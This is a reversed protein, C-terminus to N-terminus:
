TDIKMKRRLERKFEALPNAVTETPDPITGGDREPVRGRNVFRGKEDHARGKPDTTVATSGNQGAPKQFDSGFDGRLKAIEIQSEIVQQRLEPNPIQQALSINLNRYLLGIPSLAPQGQVDMLVNGKDDHVFYEAQKEQVYRALAEQQRQAALETALINRVEQLLEKREQQFRPEVAKHINGTFDGYFDTQRDMLWDRYALVKAKIGPDVGERFGDPSNSDLQSTWKPNWEPAKWKRGWEDVQSDPAAAQVQKQRTALWDNFEREHETYTSLKERYPAYQQEIQRAREHASLLVKAAAADDPFDATNYGENALIDRLSLQSQSEPTEVATEPAPASVKPAAFTTEEVQAAPDPDTAAANTTRKAM